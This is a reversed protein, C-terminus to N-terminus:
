LFFVPHAPALMLTVLTAVGGLWLAVPGPAAVLPSCARRDCLGAPTGGKSLHQLELLNGLHFFALHPFLRIWRNPGQLQEQLNEM